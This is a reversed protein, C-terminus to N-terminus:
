PRMFSHDEEDAINRAIFMMEDAVDQPSRDRGLVEAAIDLLSRGIQDAAIGNESAEALAADVHRRVIESPSPM